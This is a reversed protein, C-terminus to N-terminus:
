KKECLCIVGLKEKTECHLRNGLRSDWLELTVLESGNQQLRSKLGNLRTDIRETEERLITNKHLYTNIIKQSPDFKHSAPIETNEGIDHADLKEVTLIKAPKQSTGTSKLTVRTRNQNADKVVWIKSTEESSASPFTQDMKEKLNKL